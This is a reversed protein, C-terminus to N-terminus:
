AKSQAPRLQQQRKNAEVAEWDPSVHKWYTEGFKERDIELGAKSFERRISWLVDKMNLDDGRIAAWSAAMRAINRIIGGSVPLSGLFKFDVDPNLPLGGSLHNRWIQERTKDDPKPFAVQFSIRRMFASDINQALNTSIVVIGDFAELEQLLHNVELNAYRDQSSSTETSRKSFLTEGEDFLLIGASERAASFVLTLHKETDGIYKSTLKSLDVQFLNLGLSHALVESAMTKGTGSDGEFVITTGHGRNHKLKNGWLNEMRAKSSVHQYIEALKLKTKPPLILDDWTYKPEIKKAFQELLQSGQKRCKESISAYTLKEGQAEVENLVRDIQTLSLSFLSELRVVDEKDLKLGRADLERSWFISGRQQTFIDFVMPGMSGRLEQRPKTQALVVPSPQMTELFMRITGPVVTESHKVFLIGARLYVTNAIRNLLTLADSGGGLPDFGGLDFTYVPRDLKNGARLVELQDQYPDPSYCNVVSNELVCIKLFGQFTERDWIEYPKEKQLMRALGPLLKQDQSEETDVLFSLVEPFLRAGRDFQTDLLYRTQLPSIGVTFRNVNRKKDTFKEFVHVSLENADAIQPLLVDGCIQNLAVLGVIGTEEPSLRYAESLKQLRSDFDELEVGNSSILDLCSKLDSGLLAEMKELLWRVKLTSSTKKSM